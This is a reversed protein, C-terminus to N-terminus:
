KKPEPKIRKKAVTELGIEVLKVIATARPPLRPQRSRWADIAAILEAGPRVEIRKGQVMCDM